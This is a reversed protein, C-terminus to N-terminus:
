IKQRFFIIGCICLYFSLKFQLSQIQSCEHWRHSFFLPQWLHVSLFVLKFQLIQIQSCEHWRHSFFLTAVSACIFLYNSNFVKYKHVNTDDTALFFPNGCICLYFSLKFQLIQIQSCQHWRHSFFLFAVFACIFLYNSNFVKYKHVNTDDTAFFFAVFASIFVLKFQLIQIQSCEHWRHSFFLPQWLHVSLFIFFIKTKVNTYEHRFFIIGCICLYFSLKFQIIQIQSCKHWRHSFFLPQWLHVSLFIIQISPNTITFIRTM